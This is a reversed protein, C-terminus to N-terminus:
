LSKVELELYDSIRLANQEPTELTNIEICKCNGMAEACVQRIVTFNHIQSNLVNEREHDDCIDLRGGSTNRSTIRQLSTTVDNSCNVLSINIKKKTLFNFIPKLYQANEILDGHHISILAQLIGQDIILIENPCQKLFRRYAKYYAILVGIYKRKDKDRNQTAYKAYRAALLHLKLSGDFLYSVYYQLRSTAADYKFRVHYTNDLRSSLAKAVTTKGTGPLGNFEIIM